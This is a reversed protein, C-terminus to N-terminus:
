KIKRLRCSILINFYKNNLFLSDNNIEYKYMGGLIWDWTYLTIRANMDNFAISDNKILYNGSGWDLAESGSYSYATSDFRITITDTSEYHTDIHYVTKEGYYTGTKFDPVENDDKKCGSIISLLVITYILKKM